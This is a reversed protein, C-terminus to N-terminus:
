ARSHHPSAGSVTRTLTGATRGLGLVRRMNLRDILWLAACPLLIGLMTAALVHVALTEVGLRVLMTRVSSTVITHMVYIAMSSAGLYAIISLANGPLPRSGIWSVTGLAGVTALLRLVLYVTGSSNPFALLLAEALALACVCLIALSASGVPERGLFSLLLGLAFYPLFEVVVRALYPWTELPVVLVLASSAALLLGYGIRDPRAAVVFAAVTQITFMAWLFWFIDRPPFPYTLVDWWTGVPNSAANGAVLKSFALVYSWVIIPYLLSEMRPPISSWLGRRLIGREFFMGSLAFFLPMHFLYIAADVRAFAPGDAILGADHLGRLVHGLVVLIIGVGRAVDVWQVRGDSVTTDQM